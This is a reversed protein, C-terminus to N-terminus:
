LNEGNCVESVGYGPNSGACFRFGYPKATTIVMGHCLLLDKQFSERCFRYDSCQKNTNRIQKSAKKLQDLSMFMNPQLHGVVLTNRTLKIMCVEVKLKNKWM